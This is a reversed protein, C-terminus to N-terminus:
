RRRRSRAFVGDLLALLAEPEGAPVALAADSPLLSSGKAKREITLLAAGGKAPVELRASWWAGTAVRVTGSWVRDGRSLRYTRLRPAPGRGPVPGREPVEFLELRGSDRDYRVGLFGDRRALEKTVRTLSAQAAASLRVTQKLVAPSDM